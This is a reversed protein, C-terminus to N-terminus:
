THTDAIALTSDKWYFYVHPLLPNIIVVPRTHYFHDFNFQLNHSGSVQGSFLSIQSSLNLRSSFSSASFAANDTKIQREKGTKAEKQKDKGTKKSAM